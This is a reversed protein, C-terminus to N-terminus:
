PTRESDGMYKRGKPKSPTSAHTLPNCDAGVGGGSARAARGLSPKAGGGSIAGGTAKDVAGGGAYDKDDDYSPPIHGGRKRFLPGAGRKLSADPTGTTPATSHFAKLTKSGKGDPHVAIKGGRARGERSAEGRM